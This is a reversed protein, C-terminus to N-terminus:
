EFIKEVLVMGDWLGAQVLGVKSFRIKEVIEEVDRFSSDKIQILLLLDSCSYLRSSIDRQENENLDNKVFIFLISRRM